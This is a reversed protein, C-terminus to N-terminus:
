RYVLFFIFRHSRYFVVESRFFGSILIFVATSPFLYGMPGHSRELHDRCISSCIFYSM